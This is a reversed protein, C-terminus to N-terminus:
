IYQSKIIKCSIGATFIKLAVAADRVLDKGHGPDVFVYFCESSVRVTNRDCSFGCAASRHYVHQRDRGYFPHERLCDGLAWQWVAYCCM